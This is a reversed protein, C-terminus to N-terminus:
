HVLADFILHRLRYVVQYLIYRQLLPLLQSIMLFQYRLLLGVHNLVFLMMLSLGCASYTTRVFGSILVGLM